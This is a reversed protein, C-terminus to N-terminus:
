QDLADLLVFAAWFEPRDYIGNNYSRLALQANALAERKTQGSYLNKYMETMLIRTADDNVKWLSMVLSNTGALKFSRQLGFVGESADIDGLGSQCASLVILDVDNLNLGAIEYAYLIGDNGSTKGEKNRLTNNAGALILGSRTLRKDEGSIYATGKTVSYNMNHFDRAM